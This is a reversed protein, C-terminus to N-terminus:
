FKKQDYKIICLLTFNNNLFYELSITNPKEKSIPSVNPTELAKAWVEASKPSAGSPCGVPYGLAIKTPPSLG